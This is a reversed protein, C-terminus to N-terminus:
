ERGRPMSAFQSKMANDARCQPCIELMDKAQRGADTEGSLHELAAALLATSMFPRHCQSCEAMQARHLTVMKGSQLAAYDFRPQRKIANEPCGHECLGCQVCLAEVFNLEIGDGDTRLAGTPCLNTCALCMTCENTDVAVGGFADSAPLTVALKESGTHSRSSLHEFLTLLRARPNADTGLHTWAQAANSGNSHEAVSFDGDVADPNLVQVRARPQGLSELITGALDVNRLTSEVAMAPANEPMSVVVGAAGFAIAALWIELGLSTVSHVAFPLLTIGQTTAWQAISERDDAYFGIWPDAGGAARFAQLARELRDVVQDLSPDAFTLAGTPCVSACTGCGRCLHADVTVTQQGSAIASAPCIDLCRDCGPVRQRRHICRQPAFDIYRPKRVEGTLAPLDALAMEYHSPDVPRLYGLPLIPQDLVPTASLDMVLDFYGDDNSSKRSLDIPQGDAGHAEACFRGLYGNLSVLRAAVVSVGLLRSPPRPGDIVAVVDFRHRLARAIEFVPEGPGVLLLCRRVEYSVCADPGPLPEDLVALAAALADNAHESDSLM